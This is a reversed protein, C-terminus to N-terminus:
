LKIKKGTSLKKEKNKCALTVTKLLSQKQICASNLTKRKSIFTIWSLNEASLYLLEEAFNGILLWSAIFQGAMIDIFILHESSSIGKMICFQYLLDMSGM